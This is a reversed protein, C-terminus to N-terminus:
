NSNDMVNDEVEGTDVVDEISAKDETPSEPSEEPNVLEKVVDAHVTVKDQSLKTAGTPLTVKFEYSGSETIKSLDVEVVVDSISDIVSKIGYVAIKSPEITLNEITVGEATEGKQKITLPFDRSYEIIDVKVKVKEPSVQVDLKNLDRDLVKVTAGQEFSAKMGKEGTVTAKVYSISNIVSKAGTISVRSPNATMSKVIYEDAVLSNNMDPEVRFEGTIKEEIVVNIMKPEIEVNLKESFNEHQITVSHEGILLSNLNVFIKFDKELKTTKVIPTSGSIKVNVTDPLGTVFLNSDDYYVELPVNTIIDAENYSGSNDGKKLETQVYLFLAGALILSTLLLMWRSDFLKDM